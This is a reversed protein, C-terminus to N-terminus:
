PKNGFLEDYRLVAGLLTQAGIVCDEPSCFEKPNHSVGGACPVFIMSTPCRMSTYVSSYYIAKRDHGAGSQMEMTLFEGVSENASERVCNICKEDFVTSAVLPAMNFDVTCGLGSDHSAIRTFEERMESRIKEVVETRQHRCDITFEVSGAVTNISGPLVKMVGTSIVANYREAMKSSAVVMKAAALCADSRMPIPTAGSHAEQGHVYVTTWGEAQVGTVIGVKLNRQELIPGQEIHLEFHAGFPNANYSAAVSGNFGTRELEQGLTRHEKGIEQLGLAKELPISGSWVGSALKPIPFRAGEENTWDVIGIPCNTEINNEDLVRLVELGALVGLIGDYRGSGMQDVFPENCSKMERCASLLWNKAATDEDSATLRCMGTETPDSGWSFKAGWLSTHHITDMLRQANVKLFARSSM